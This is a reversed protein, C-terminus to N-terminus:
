AALEKILISSALVGGFIRGGSQGNFTITAAASPGCRVRFTTASTTGATMRHTFTIMGGATSLNNFTAGVALANTVADQFLAAILWPTNTSTLFVTVTIELIHSANLPTITATMFETGQSITPIADTFSITTTGTNVAGTETGVSQVLGRVSSVLAKKTAVAVLDVYPIIDTALPVGVTLGSIKSDAM